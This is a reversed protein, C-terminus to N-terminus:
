YTEGEQDTLRRFGGFVGNHLNLRKIKREFSQTPSKKSPKNTQKKKKQNKLNVYKRLKIKKNKM